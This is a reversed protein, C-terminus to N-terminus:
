PGLIGCAESCGLGLAVVVSDAPPLQLSAKLQLFIGQEAVLVQSWWIFLYTNKINFFYIFHLTNRNVIEFFFFFFGKMIKRQEGSLSQIGQCTQCSVRCLRAEACGMLRLKVCHEQEKWVLWVPRIKLKKEEGCERKSYSM